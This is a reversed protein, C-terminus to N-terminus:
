KRAIAQERAEALAEVVQEVTYSDSMWPVDSRPSYIALFPIATGGFEKLLDWGIAGDDTLDVRMPTVDDTALERRVRDSRLITKRVAKVEIDWDAVFDLVVIQGSKRASELAEPSYDQWIDRAIPRGQADRAQELANMVQKSTYANSQWPEDSGPSYIVLLPIGTQGLDTLLDWGPAKTSTLDVTFTVIDDDQLESKVPNRNLVSAKMAKCTLCWEATFDLVVVMGDDRAQAVAASSYENWIGTVYGGDNGAAAIAAQRTQWTDHAKVTVDIAYLLAAGGIIIGVISFSIRPIAKHTIQFTRLMLWLGALVAFLAVGWWPLQRGIFPYDNTLAILGAGIFYAGAALLLLGMVQKVLESAPGTRPIKEVLGPKASLVLYPAAMGVGLGAFITMITPAPLTASGALLAGAVFGFCPLGLVGTMVGFVFSGWATEARPNVSYVAAPLQITFLGMIGIGMLAILAGLGATLWWIGFIRSPDTVSRFMIVPLGIAVWFAIVGLAMWLGLMLSRHPSNAHQSITMIKIPIVPLVCPTLNLVFGGIISMLAILVFGLLGETSPLTIGFFSPRAVPTAAGDTEEDAAGRADAAPTADDDAPPTEDISTPTADADYGAFTNTAAYDVPADAAAADVINLTTTLEHDFVPMLCQKDDCAQFTTTVTIEVEGTTADDAVTVPVYAIAKGEFVGFTEVAGGFSAEAGHIEPWQSAGFEIAADSAADVKTYIAGDFVDYGKDAGTNGPNPWIHWNDAIDFIVAIVTSQGAAINSRAAEISVSVQDRSDGFSAQQQGGIGFQGPGSSKRNGTFQGAATTVGLAILLLLTLPTFQRAPM